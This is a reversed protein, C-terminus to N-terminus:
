YSINRDYLLSKTSLTYSIFEAIQQACQLPFLSFSRELRIIPQSWTGVKSLFWNTTIEASRTTFASTKIRNGLITSTCAHM